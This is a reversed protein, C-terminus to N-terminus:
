RRTRAANPPLEKGPIRRSVEETAAHADLHELVQGPRYQEDPDVSAILREAADIRALLKERSTGSRHSDRLQEVLPNKYNVHM